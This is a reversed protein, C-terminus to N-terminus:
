GFYKKNRISWTELTGDEYGVVFIDDLVKLYTLSSNHTKKLDLSEWLFLADM